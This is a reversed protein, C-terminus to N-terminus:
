TLFEPQCECLVPLGGSHRRIQPLPQRPGVGMRGKGDGPRQRPKRHRPLLGALGRGSGQVLLGARRVFGRHRLGQGLLGPRLLLRGGLGRRFPGPRSCAWLSSDQEEGEMVSISGFPADSGRLCVAWQYYDPNQYLAEWAALLQATELWDRHPEWRLFRTVQPDNAWTEFMPIADGTTMPRLILRETELVQTGLHRM